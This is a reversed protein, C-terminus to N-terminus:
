FAVYRLEVEHRPLNPEITARSAAQLGADRLVDVLPRKDAEIHIIIPISSKAGIEAFGYGAQDALARVVGAIPGVYTLTVPQRLEEPVADLDPGSASTDPHQRNEIEALKKLANSATLAAAAIKAAAPDDRTPPASPTQCAGLVCAM